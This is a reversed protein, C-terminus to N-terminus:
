LPIRISGFTYNLIKSSFNDLSTLRYGLHHGGKNNKRWPVCKLRPKRRLGRHMLM